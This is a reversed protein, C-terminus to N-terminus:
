KKQGNIKYQEPTVGAFRKFMVIFASPTTYGLELAIRQVTKGAELSELAYMYKLRSRWEGFSMGLEKHCRRELTRSTMHLVEAFDDLSRRDGPNGQLTKLVNNLEESTAYPLYSDHPKINLIQDLAVKAMRLDEQSEPTRVDREAFDDLIAHLVASVNLTIPTPPLKRSCEESIYVTRYILEKSASSYHAAFPPIWVAYQSPSIFREGEIELHMIGHAVYNLQGWPHAHSHWEMAPLTDHRFYLDGPFGEIQPIEGIKTV